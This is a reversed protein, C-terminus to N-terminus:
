LAQLITPTVPHIDPDLQRLARDFPVIAPVEGAACCTRFQLKLGLVRSAPVDPDGCLTTYMAREYDAGRSSGPHWVAYVIVVPRDGAM